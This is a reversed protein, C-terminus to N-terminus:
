PFKNHRPHNDLIRDAAIVRLWERQDIFRARVNIRNYVATSTFKKRRAQNIIRSTLQILLITLSAITVQPEFCTHRSNEIYILLKPIKSNLFSTLYFIVIVKLNLVLCFLFDESSRYFRVYNVLM